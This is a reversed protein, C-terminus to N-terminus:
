SAGGEADAAWGEAIQRARTLAAILAPIDAASIRVVPSIRIYSQKEHNFKSVEVLGATGNTKQFAVDVWQGHENNLKNM